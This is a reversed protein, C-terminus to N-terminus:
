ASRKLRENTLALLQDDSGYSFRFQRSDTALSPGYAHTMTDRSMGPLLLARHHWGCCPIQYADGRRKQGAHGGANLHHSETAFPQAVQEIECPLCELQRVLLSRASL